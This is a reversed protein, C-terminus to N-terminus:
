SKQSLPVAGSSHNGSIVPLSLKVTKKSRSLSTGQISAAASFLRDVVTKILDEPMSRNYNISSGIQMNGVLLSRKIPM